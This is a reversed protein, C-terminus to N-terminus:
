RCTLYIPKIWKSLLVSSMMELVHILFFFFCTLTPKHSHTYLPFLFVRKRSIKSNLSASYYSLLQYLFCLKFAKKLFLSIVTYQLPSPCSRFTLSLVIIFSLSSFLNSYYVQTLYSLTTDVVCTFTTANSTIIIICNYYFM